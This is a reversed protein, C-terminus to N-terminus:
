FLLGKLLTVSYYGAYAIAIYRITKGSIALAAFKRFDYSILGAAIGIVDFGLPLLAGLFIIPAGKEKITKTMGLIKRMHPKDFKELGVSSAKGLLYGTCEGLGAGVGAFLGLLLPSFVGLNNFNFLPASTFILIEIPLPFIITANAILSALFFGPLGYTQVLSALFAEFGMCGSSLKAPLM